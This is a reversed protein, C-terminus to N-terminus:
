EKFTQFKSLVLRSYKNYNFQLAPNVLVAVDTHVLDTHVSLILSFKRNGRKPHVGPQVAHSINNHKGREESFSLYLYASIQSCNTTSIKNRQSNIVQM